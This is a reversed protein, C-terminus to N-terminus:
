RLSVLKGGSEVRFRGFKQCIDSLQCEIDFRFTTNDLTSEDRQITILVDYLDTIITDMNQANLNKFGFLTIGDPMLSYLDILRKLANGDSLGAILYMFDCDLILVSDPKIKVLFDRLGEFEREPDGQKIFGFLNGFDCDDDLGIKIFKIRDLVMAMEPDKFMLYNARRKFKYYYGESYLVVYVDKKKSFYPLIYQFIILDKVVPSDYIIRTRLSEVENMIEEFRVYTDRLEM